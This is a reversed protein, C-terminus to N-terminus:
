KSITRCTPEISILIDGTATELGALLANQHRRNRALKIGLIYHNSAVYSEILTWNKDKSGDDVFWIASGPAILQEHEMEQM